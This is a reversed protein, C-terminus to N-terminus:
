NGILFCSETKYVKFVYMAYPQKQDRTTEEMQLAQLSKKDNLVQAYFLVPSKKEFTLINNERLARVYQLGTTNIGLLVKEPLREWVHV